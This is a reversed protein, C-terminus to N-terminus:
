RVREFWVGIDLNERMHDAQRKLDAAYAADYACYPACHTKIAEAFAWGGAAFAANEAASKACNAAGNISRACVAWAMHIVAWTADNSTEILAADHNSATEEPKHETAEITAPIMREVDYVSTKGELLGQTGEVLEAPRLEGPLVYPLVSVVTDDLVRIVDVFSPCEAIPTHLIALWVMLDGRSCDAWVEAIHDSSNQAIFSM